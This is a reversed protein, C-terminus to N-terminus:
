FFTVEPVAKGAKETGFQNVRQEMTTYGKALDVLWSSADIPQHIQGASWRQDIDALYANLKEMDRSVHTLIQSVRDQFQLNVLVDSIEGRIEGVHSNLIGASESLGSVANRFQDLVRGIKTESSLLIESSDKAYQQSNQVVSLMAANVVAVKESIHKGTDGSLESLKRVEAAVVAFGRGATGARAAEIAANLALLNTQAAIQAVDKAMRQLEDTFQTLRTVEGMLTEKAALTGKLSGMIM